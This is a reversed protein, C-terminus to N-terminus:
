WRASGETFHGSYDPQKEADQREPSRLKGKLFIPPVHTFIFIRQRTDLVQDLWDLQQPTLRRDSSDLGIFRCGNHDYYFDTAGFISKYLTKDGQNDNPEPRDHNGIM